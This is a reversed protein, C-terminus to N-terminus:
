PICCGQVFLGYSKTILIWNGFRGLVYETYASVTCQAMSITWPGPSSVARAVLRATCMGACRDTNYVLANM